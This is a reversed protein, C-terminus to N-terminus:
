PVLVWRGYAVFAAFAFLILSVYINPKDRSRLHFYLSVLLILGTFAASLPTLWAAAGLLGPLVLGLAALLSFLAALYLLAPAAAGLKRRADQITQKNQQLGHTLSVTLLKVALIIQLAWLFIDM